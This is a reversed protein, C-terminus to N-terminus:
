VQAVTINCHVFISAIANELAYPAPRLLLMSPAAMALLPGFDLAGEDAAEL